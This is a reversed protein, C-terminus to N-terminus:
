WPRLDVSPEESVVGGYLQSDSRSIVSPRGRARVSSCAGPRLELATPM